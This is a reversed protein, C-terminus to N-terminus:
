PVIPWKLWTTRCYRLEIGDPTALVTASKTRDLEVEGGAEEERKAEVGIGARSTATKPVRVLASRSKTDLPKASEAPPSTNPEDSPSVKRCHAM